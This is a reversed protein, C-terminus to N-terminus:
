ERGIALDHGGFDAAADDTVVGEDLEPEGLALIEKVLAIRGRVTCTEEHTLAGDNRSRLVELRAQLYAHLKLWVASRAEIPDLKM